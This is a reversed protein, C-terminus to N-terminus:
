KQVLYFLNENRGKYVTIHVMITRSKESNVFSHFMYVFALLYLSKLPLFHDNCLYKTQFAHKTNLSIHLYASILEQSM